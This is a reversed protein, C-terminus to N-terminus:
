KLHALGGGPGIRVLSTSYEYWDGWSESMTPMWGQGLAEILNMWFGVLGMQQLPMNAGYPASFVTWTIHLSPRCLDDALRGDTAMTTAAMGWWEGRVCLDWVNWIWWEREVREGRICDHCRYAKSSVMFWYCNYEQYNLNSGRDERRKMGCPQIFGKGGWM